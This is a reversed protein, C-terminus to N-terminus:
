LSGAQLVWISARGGSFRGHSVGAGAWRFYPSLVVSRHASSQLWRSITGGIRRGTGGHISLVEGIQHFRGSARIPYVHGLWNRRMLFSSYSGATQALSPSHRLAHLGHRERLENIADVM